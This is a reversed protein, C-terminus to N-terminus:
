PGKPGPRDLVFLVVSTVLLAGGAALAIVGGTRTDYLDACQRQGPAPSCTGRGDVAVLGAGVGLALAGGVLAVWKVPRLPHARPPPPAPASLAVDLRATAGPAVNVDREVRAGGAELAVVHDGAELEGAWPTAGKAEGDVSLAASPQASVELRGPRTLEAHLRTCLASLRDRVEAAVAVREVGDAIAKKQGADWVTLGLTFSGDAGRELRPLLLREVRLFAAEEVLCGGARCQLLEPRDSVKMDVENPALLTFGASALARPLAESFVQQLDPPATQGTTVPAIATMMERAGAISPGVVLLVTLAWPRM